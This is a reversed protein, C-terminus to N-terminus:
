HKVVISSHLQAVVLQQPLADGLASGPAASYEAAGPGAPRRPIPATPPPAPRSNVFGAVVIQEEATPPSTSLFVLNGISCVVCGASQGKSCLVAIGPSVIWAAPPPTKTARRRRGNPVAKGIHVVDIQATRQRLTQRQQEILNILSLM